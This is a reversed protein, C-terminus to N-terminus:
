CAKDFCGSKCKALASDLWSSLGQKLQRVMLFFFIRNVFASCYVFHALSFKLICIYLFIDKNSIYELSTCMFISIDCFEQRLGFLAKRIHLLHHTPGSLQQSVLLSVGEGYM